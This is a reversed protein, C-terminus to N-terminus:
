KIFPELSGPSVFGEAEGMGDKKRTMEELVAESLVMGGLDPFRKGENWLVADPHGGRQWNQGPWSNGTDKWEARDGHVAVLCAFPLSTGTLVLLPAQASLGQPHPM